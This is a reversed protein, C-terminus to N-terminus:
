SPVEGETSTTVAASAPAIAPPATSPLAAKQGKSSSFNKERNAKAAVRLSKEWESRKLRYLM